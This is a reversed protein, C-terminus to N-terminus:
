KNMKAVIADNCFIHAPKKCNTSRYYAEEVEIKKQRDQEATRYM